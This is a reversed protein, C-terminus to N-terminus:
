TTPQDYFTEQHLKKQTNTKARCLFNLVLSMVSCGRPSGAGATRLNLTDLLWWRATGLLQTQLGHGGWDGAWLAAAHGLAEDLRELLVVGLQRM